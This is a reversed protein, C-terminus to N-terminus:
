KKYKDIDFKFLEKIQSRMERMKEEFYEDDHIDTDRLENDWFRYYDEYLKLLLKFKPQKIKEKERKEKYYKKAYEQMKGKNDDKYKKRKEQLNEKNDERYKKLKEKYKHQSKNRCEKCIARLLKDNGKKLRTFYEPTAPKEEGCENCKRLQGM